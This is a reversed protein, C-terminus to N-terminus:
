TGFVDSIGVESASEKPLGNKRQLEGSELNDADWLFGNEHGLSLKDFESDVARCQPEMHAVYKETIGCM